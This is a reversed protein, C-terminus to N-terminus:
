EDVEPMEELVRIARDCEKRYSAIMEFCVQELLKRCNGANSRIWQQLTMEEEDEPMNSIFSTLEGDYDDNLEYKSNSLSHLYDSTTEMNSLNDLLRAFSAERWGTSLKISNMGSTDPIKQTFQRQPTSSEIVDAINQKELKIKKSTEEEIDHVGLDDRSRKSTTSSESLRSTQSNQGLPSTEPFNSPSSKLRSSHGIDRPKASSILSRKSPTELNSKSFDASKNSNSSALPISRIEKIPTATTLSHERFINPAEALVEPKWSLSKVKKSEDKNEKDNDNDHSNEITSKVDINQVRDVQKLQPTSSEVALKKIEETIEKENEQVEDVLIGLNNEEQSYEEINEQKEDDFKELKDSVSEKDEIQVIEEKASTQIQPHTTEHRQSIDKENSLDLEKVDSETVVHEDVHLNASIDKLGMKLEDRNLASEEPVETEIPTSEKIEEITDVKKSNDDIEDLIDENSTSREQAIDIVPEEEALKKPRSADDGKKTKQMVTNADFEGDGVDFVSSFDLLNKVVPQKQKKQPIKKIPSIPAPGPLKTLNTPKLINSLSDLLKDKKSLKSNLEEPSKSKPAHLKINQELFDLKDEEYDGLNHNSIDHTSTPSPSDAQKMKIRKSLKKPSKLIQEFRDDDFSINNHLVPKQKSKLKHEPEVSPTKKISTEASKSKQNSVSRRAPVKNVNKRTKVSTLEVSDDEDSFFDETVEFSSSSMEDVESDEDSSVILSISTSEITTDKEKLSTSENPGHEIEAPGNESSGENLRSKQEKTDISEKKTINISRTTKKILDTVPESEKEAPKNSAAKFDIDEGPITDWFEDDSSDKSIRRVSNEIKPQKSRTIRGTSSRSDNKDEEIDGQREKYPVDVDPNSFAYDLVDSDDESHSSHVEDESISSQNSEVIAIEEPRHDEQSQSSIVKRNRLRRVPPRIEEDDDVEGVEERVRQATEVTDELDSFEVDEKELMSKMESIENRLSEEKLDTMDITVEKTSENVVDEQNESVESKKSKAVRKKRPKPEVNYKELFFCYGPANARHEEIPDDNSSWTDLSCSCYVCQVRDNGYRLPCYYFGSKALSLSTAKSGKSKDFNWNSGFTKKRIDVAAKCNVDKAIEDPNGKWFEESTSDSSLHSIQQSIIRSLACNPNSQLHHQAMNEVGGVNTEKKKCCCCTIQDLNLKTPTFFFGYDALVEPSPKDHTWYRKQKSKSQFAGEYTELRNERFQM